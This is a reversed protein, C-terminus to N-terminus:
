PREPHFDARTTVNTLGLHQPSLESPDSDVRPSPDHRLRTRSFHQNRFHHLLENGRGAEREYISSHVSKLADIPLPAQVRDGGDVALWTRGRELWLDRRSQPVLDFRRGQYLPPHTPETDRSERQQDCDADNDGDSVAGVRDLHSGVREDPNVGRGVLNDSVHGDGIWYPREGEDRRM